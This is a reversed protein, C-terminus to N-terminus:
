TGIKQGSGWCCSICGIVTVSVQACRDTEPTVLSVRARPVASPTQATPTAIAATYAASVSTSMQYVCVCM